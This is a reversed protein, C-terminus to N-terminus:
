DQKKKVYWNKVNEFTLPERTGEMGSINASCVISNLRFYLVMFPLDDIFYSQFAYAADRLEEETGAFLMAKSLKVLESDAIHGFNNAGEPSIYGTLENSLGLNFGALAIDWEGEKLKKEFESEGSGLTHAAVIVEVSFGLEALSAAIQKAADSRVTNEATGSTLLKISLSAGARSYRLGNEQESVVTFGADEILSLAGAPDYGIVSLRSDSLWSDPPIPVDSVRARNMYVNTIIRSRNVAHAVALRLFRDKFVSTEHNFLLVEMDQTMIDHVATVGSEAYKGATLLDTPVMNLQGADYSALATSNSDREFFAIREIYPIKDWWDTNVRLVVSEDDRRELRYAGTGVLEASKKIPFVLSYLGMLGPVDFEARLTYDDVASLGTLHNLCSSYYSRDLAKLSDYTSIVDASTLTGNDHWKVGERLRLLWVGDGESTWSECLCPEIEGSSNVTLLKDYVLSFLLLLEETDVALPDALSANVPMPLRLTGGQEPEATAEPSATPLATNVPAGGGGQCGCSLLMIFAAALALARNVSFSKRMFM